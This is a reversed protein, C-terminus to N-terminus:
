TRGPLRPAYRLLLEADQGPDVLEGDVDTVSYDLTVVMNKAVQMNM